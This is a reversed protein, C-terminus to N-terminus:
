RYFYATGGGADGSGTLLSTAPNWTLTMNPTANCNGTGVDCTVVSASLAGYKKLSVHNYNTFDTGGSNMNIIITRTYLPVQVSTNFAVTASVGLYQESRRSDILIQTASIAQGVYIEATGTTTTLTSTDSVYYELGATLGSFGGVVGETQVYCTTGAGCNNIAFGFFNKDVAVDAESAFVTATSTALYVPVPSTYGNITEGGTFENVINGKFQAGNFTTTAFTSTATFSNLGSHNNNGTFSYTSTQDFCGKDLKGTTSSAVINYSGVVQCTSTSNKTQLVTPKDAGGNYSDAQEALTGLEVIGGNSETSTAAGQNAINDVYSKITFQNSSTATISSTPLYSNFNWLGTVSEDTRRKTYENFLAPSDSLIFVSQGPHSKRLTTSATSAGIDSLGRTCTTLTATGNANQTIGTCSIFESRSTQPSLTGYIVDTALLTMTLPIDSRNKFSSLTISTDTTAVSSQLRYTTGGTPSFGGFAPGRELNQIKQEAVDVRPTIDDKFNNIGLLSGVFVIGTLITSIILNSM